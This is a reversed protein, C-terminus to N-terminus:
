NKLISDLYSAYENFRNVTTQVIDIMNGMSKSIKRKGHNFKQTARPSKETSEKADVAILIFESMSLSAARLSDRLGKMAEMDNEQNGNFDEIMLLVNEFSQTHSNVSDLMQLSMSEM